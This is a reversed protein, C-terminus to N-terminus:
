IFIKNAADAARDPNFAAPLQPYLRALDYLPGDMTIIFLRARDFGLFDILYRATSLIMLDIIGVNKGRKFAKEFFRDVGIVIDRTTQIDHFSVKRVSRSAGKASLQVEERLDDRAKKFHVSKPFIGSKNYYKKALTKFAEAICVDLVFVKAKRARRQSEIVKWYAQAERARDQESLDSIRSVNLFHYMLFNADILYFIQHVPAKPICRRQTRM